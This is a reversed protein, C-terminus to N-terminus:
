KASQSQNIFRKASQFKGLLIAKLNLYWLL